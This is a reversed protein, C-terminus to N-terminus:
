QKTSSTIRYCYVFVSNDSGGGSDGQMGKALLQEEASRADYITDAKRYIWCDNKPSVNHENFLRRQIDDTIGSYYDSYYKGSDQKIHNLIVENITKANM